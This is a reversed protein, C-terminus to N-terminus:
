VMWSIFKHLTDENELLNYFTLEQVWTPKAVAHDSKIHKLLSNIIIVNNGTKNSNALPSTSKNPGHM